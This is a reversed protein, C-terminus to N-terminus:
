IDSVPPRGSSQSSVPQKSRRWTVSRSRPGSRSVPLPRVLTLRVRRWSLRSSKLTKKHPSPLSCIWTCLKPRTHLWLTSQTLLRTSFNMKSVPLWITTLTTAYVLVTSETSSCAWMTMSRESFVMGFLSRRRLQLWLVLVSPKPRNSCSLSTLLQSSKWLAARSLWILNVHSSFKKFLLTSRNLLWSLSQSFKTTLTKSRVTTGILSCRDWHSQTSLASWVQCSCKNPARPRSVVVQSFIEAHTSCKPTTNNSLSQPCSSTSSQPFM